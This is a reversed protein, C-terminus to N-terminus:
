KKEELIKDKNAELGIEIVYEKFVEKVTEKM